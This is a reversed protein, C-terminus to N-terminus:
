RIFVLGDDFYGGIGPKIEKCFVVGEQGDRFSVSDEDDERLPFHGPWAAYRKALDKYRSSVVFVFGDGGSQLAQNHAWLIAIGDLLHQHIM